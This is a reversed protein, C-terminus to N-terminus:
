WHFPFPGHGFLSVVFAILVIALIINRITGDVPVLALIIGLVLLGLIWSM